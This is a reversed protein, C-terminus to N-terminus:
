GDGTETLEEADRTHNLADQRAQLERPRDLGIWGCGPFPCVARWRPVTHGGGPEFKTIDPIHM